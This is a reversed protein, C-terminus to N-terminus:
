KISKCWLNMDELGGAINCNQILRGTYQYNAQAFIKNVGAIKARAITYLCNYDRKKLEEELEQLLYSALGQGRYNKLTAFDTMEANKYKPVTEASAAAVLSNGDYVLAYIVNESLMEKLYSVENIPYPYSDFVRDYLQALDLLDEVDALKFQYDAALDIEEKESQLNSLSNIIKEEKDRNVMQKRDESLYYAMSLANSNPYYDKIVAEKTFGLEKFQEADEEYAKVWIKTFKQQKAMTKLKTILGQLNEGQYEKIVIRKNLPSLHVKAQYDDGSIKEKKGDVQNATMILM